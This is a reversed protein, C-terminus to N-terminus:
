GGSFPLLFAIRDKKNFSININDKKLVINGNVVISISKKIKNSDNDLILKKINPYKHVLLDILEKLNKKELLFSENSRGTIDKFDAFYM